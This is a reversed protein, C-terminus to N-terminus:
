HSLDSRPYDYEKEVIRLGDLYKQTDTGAALAQKLNDLLDAHKVPLALTNSAARRVFAAEPEAPEKTLAVVAGVIVPDFGKELLRQATWGLGKELVDHLYAVVKADMGDVANAVRQCHSFYSQGTKDLQGAHAEAAIHSALLLAESAGKKSPKEYGPTEPM